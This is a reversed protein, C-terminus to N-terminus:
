GSLAAAKARVQDLNAQATKTSPHDPGLKNSFVALAQEYYGIAKDYEGKNRWAVGLNNWDVAVKPHQAGFTAIDVALPRGEDEM